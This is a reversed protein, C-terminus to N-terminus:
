EYGAKRPADLLRPQEYSEEALREKLEDKMAMVIELLRDMEALKEDRQYHRAFVRERWVRERRIIRYASKYLASLEDVTM